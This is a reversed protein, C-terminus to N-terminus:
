LVWGPIPPPLRPGAAVAILTSTGVAFAPSIWTSVMAYDVQRSGYRYAVPSARGPSPAAPHHPDASKGDTSSSFFTAAAALATSATHPRGRTPAGVDLVTPVGPLSTIAARTDTM